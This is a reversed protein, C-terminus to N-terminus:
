RELEFRVAGPPPGLILAGRYRGGAVLELREPGLIQGSSLFIYNVEPGISHVVVDRPMKVRQVRGQGFSLVFEDGSLTGLVERQQLRADNKALRFATVLQRGVSDLSFKDIRKLLSPSAVAITVGIISLVVILEILTVGSLPSRFRPM